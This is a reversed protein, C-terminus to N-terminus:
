KKQRGALERNKEKLKQLEGSKQLETIVENFANCLAQNKKNIAIAYEEKTLPIDLLRIATSNLKVLTTAPGEDLVVADVKGKKLAEIALAGNGYQAIRDSNKNTIINQRVFDYGTTATQCGIRVGAGKLDDPRTLKSNVPVIILQAATEYPITFLVNKKREETVTIGSAALDARGTVVHSIVSNFQTDEIHLKKGLKEAVRKVIDVDIGVIESGIRFEYPPFTAETVMVLTNETNKSEGCGTFLLVAAAASVAAALIYLLKM